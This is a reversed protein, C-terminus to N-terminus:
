KVIMGDIMDIMRKLKFSYYLSKKKNFINSFILIIYHKNEQCGPRTYNSMRIVHGKLHPTFYASVSM